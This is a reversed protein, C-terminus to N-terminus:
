WFLSPIFMPFTSLFVLRKTCAHSDEVALEPRCGEVVAANERVIRQLTAVAPLVLAIRPHTQEGERSEFAREVGCAVLAPRVLVHRAAWKMHPFMYNSCVIM